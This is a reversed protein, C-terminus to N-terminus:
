RAVQVFRVEPLFIKWTEKCLKCSNKHLISVGVIGGILDSHRNCFVKIIIQLIFKQRILLYNLYKKIQYM